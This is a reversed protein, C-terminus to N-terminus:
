YRGNLILAEHIQMCFLFLIFDVESALFTSLHRTMQPGWTAIVRSGSSSMTRCRRLVAHGIEWHDGELVLDFHGPKQPAPCCSDPCSISLLHVTCCLSVKYLWFIVFLGKGLYTSYTTDIRIRSINRLLGWYTIHSARSFFTSKWAGRRKIGQTEGAAGDRCRYAVAPFMPQSTQLGHVSPRHPLHASGFRPFSWGGLNDWLFDGEKWVNQQFQTVQKKLYSLRPSLRTWNANLPTDEWFKAASLSYGPLLVGNFRFSDLKRDFMCIIKWPHGRYVLWFLDLYIWRGTKTARSNHRQWVGLSVQAVLIVSTRPLNALTTSMGVLEYSFAESLGHELKIM